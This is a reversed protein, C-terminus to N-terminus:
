RYFYEFILCRQIQRSKKIWPEKKKAEKMLKNVHEFAEKEEKEM